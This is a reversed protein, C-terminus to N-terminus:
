SLKIGREQGEYLAQFLLVYLLGKLLNSLQLLINVGLILDNLGCYTLLGEIAHYSVARYLTQVVYSKLIVSPEDKLLQGHYHM